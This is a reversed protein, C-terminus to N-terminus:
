RSSVPEADRVPSVAACLGVEAIFHEDILHRGPFGAGVEHWYEVKEEGLRWCLDVERGQYLAAFDILGQRWDKLECGVATLEEALDRLKDLHKSYQRGLSAQEEESVGPRRMHCKDELHCVKKHQKVIDAVIRRVLPIARNAKEVTFLPRRRVTKRPAPQPATLRAQEM